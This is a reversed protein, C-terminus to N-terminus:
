HRKTDRYILEACYMFYWFSCPNQLHISKNNDTQISVSLWWIFVQFFINVPTRRFVCLMLQHRYQFHQWIIQFLFAIYILLFGHKKLFLFLILLLHYRICYFEGSIVMQHVCTLYSLVFRQACMWSLKVEPKSYKPVWYFCVRAAAESDFWSKPPPKVTKQKLQILLRTWVICGFQHILKRM